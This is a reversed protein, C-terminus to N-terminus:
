EEVAYASEEDGTAETEGTEGDTNPFDPKLKKGKKAAEYHQAACNFMWVAGGATLPVEVLGQVYCWISTDAIAVTAWVAMVTMIVVVVAWAIVMFAIFGDSFYEIPSRRLAKEIRGCKRM